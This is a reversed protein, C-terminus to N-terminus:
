WRGLRANLVAIAAPGATSTRLVSAGLRVARAGAAGLADLEAPAIGGEPGVVIVIDAAAPHQEETELDIETLALTATPELLLMRTSGALVALQKTSALDLVETAWPRISQKTAERAITAWRDRGKVAKAADWRSISRSASWPIVADVGLETAAQVALEDRDGKALAQVLVLRPSAADVRQIRDAAITLEGPAATTVTGTVILGRGNGISITEGVRTRGVTVAHRAEAGTITVSDAVAEPELDDSLYLSSM